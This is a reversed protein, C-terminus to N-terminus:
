IDKEDTKLSFALVEEKKVTNIEIENYLIYIIDNQTGDEIEMKEIIGQSKDIYLKKYSNYKNNNKVETELIVKGDKEYCKSNESEIYDEIFSSLSLENSEIYKYNKYIKSLSLKTNEIKLEGNDYLFSVGSINQPEIAEQKYINGNKIYQQKLKYINENKNSKITVQVIARYSEINLIYKEIEDASKNSINNGKKSFKYNNKIFFIMIFIIVAGAIFILIKKGKM